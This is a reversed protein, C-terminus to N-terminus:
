PYYSNVISFDGNLYYASQDINFSPRNHVSFILKIPNQPKIFIIQFNTVDCKVVGYRWSRMRLSRTTQKDACATVDILPTM